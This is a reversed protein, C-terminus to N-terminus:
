SESISDNRLIEWSVAALALYTAAGWIAIPAVLISLSLSWLYAWYFSAREGNTLRFGAARSEDGADADVEVVDDSENASVAVELDPSESTPTKPSFHREYLDLDFLQISIVKDVPILVRFDELSRGDQADGDALQDYTPFYPTTIELEGRATRFGSALPIIALWAKQADTKESLPVGVYVKGNTLSISVSLGRGISEEILGDLDDEPAVERRLGKLLLDNRELPDNFLAPLLWALCASWATIPVLSAITAAVDDKGSFPHAGSFTVAVWSYFGCNLAFLHVSAALIFLYGAALVSGFYQPHGDKYIAVYQTLLFKSFFRWGCALIFLGLSIPGM